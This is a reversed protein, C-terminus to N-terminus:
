LGISKLSAEEQIFQNAAEGISGEIVDKTAEEYASQYLQLETIDKLLGKIEAIELAVEFEEPSSTKKVYPEGNKDVGEIESKVMRVIKKKSHLVNWYESEIYRLKDIREVHTEKFDRCIEYMRNKTNAKIKAYTKYYENRGMEFGNEKLHKLAREEGIRMSQTALVMLEKPNLPM